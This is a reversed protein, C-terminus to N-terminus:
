ARIAELLLKEVLVWGESQDREMREVIIKKFKQLSVKVGFEMHIDRLFRKGDCLVLWEAEWTAREKKEEDECKSVFDECWEKEKLLGIQAQLKSLRSFLVSRADIYGKNTIEKPRLGPNEYMYLNYTKEVVRRPIQAIAIRKFIEPVEGRAGISKKALDSANLVDYIIKEDILYNELCRRKWQLVKVL